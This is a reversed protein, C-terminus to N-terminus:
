LRPVAKEATEYSLILKGSGQGQIDTDEVTADSVKKSGRRKPETNWLGRLAM